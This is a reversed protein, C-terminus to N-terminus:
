RLGHDTLLQNAWLADEPALTPTLDLRCNLLHYRGREHCQDM